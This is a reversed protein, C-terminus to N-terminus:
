AGAALGLMSAVKDAIALGLQEQGAADLHVGDLPSVKVREGADLFSIKLVEAMARYYEGLRRSRAVAEPSFGWVEQQLKPPPTVPTPAVLLV